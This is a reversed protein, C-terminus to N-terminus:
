HMKYLSICVALGNLTNNSYLNYSQLRSYKNLPHLIIEPSLYVIVHLVLNFILVECIHAM